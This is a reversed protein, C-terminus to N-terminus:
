RWAQPSSHKGIKPACTMRPVQGTGLGSLFPSNWVEGPIEEDDEECDYTVRLFLSYLEM